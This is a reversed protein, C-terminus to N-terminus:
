MLGAVAADVAERPCTQQAATSGEDHRDGAAGVRQAQEVRQHGHPGAITAADHDPVDVMSQAVVRFIVGAVDFGDRRPVAQAALGDGDVHAGQGPIISEADFLSPPDPPIPSQAVEGAVDSGAGDQGSVGAGVRDLRQQQM